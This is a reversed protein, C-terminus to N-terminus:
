VYLVFSAANQKKGDYALSLDHILDCPCACSVAGVIVFSTIEPSRTTYPLPLAKYRGTRVKSTKGDYAISLMM